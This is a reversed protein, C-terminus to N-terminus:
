YELRVHGKYTRNDKDNLKLIYFYSGAPLKGKNGSGFNATGDWDNKYPSKQYVLNGWRNYIEVEANKFNLLGKIEWVDNKGDGNPTILEPIPGFVDWVTVTRQTTDSCPGNTAILTVIYTGTQNFEIVPNPIGSTQGNGFNWQYSSAGSSTNQFNVTLPLNGSSPTPSFDAWVYLVSYASTALASGCANSVTATYTGNAGPSFVSGQFGTNWTVTGNSAATFSFPVSTNCFVTSSPQISITPQPTITISISSTATNCSNSASVSYTGSQNVILSSGSVTGWTINTANSSATLTTQGCHPGAPANIQITASPTVNVQTTAQANGCVSSVTFGYIGSSGISVSPQTSGTTWSYTQSGTQSVPTITPHINVSQGGCVSYLPLIQISPTVNININASATATNCAGTSSVTYTGSNNVVLSPAHVSGNWIFSTGNGIATLTTQNCYPGSPVNIQVTTLPVIQVQVSASASGCLGNVTFGYIGSTGASISSQTSGNSWSYTQSGTQSVPTITPQINVSQGSCTVLTPTVQVTPTKYVNVTFVAQASGTITGCTRTAICTLTVPGFENIGPTYTNTLLTTNNIAFSGQGGTWFINDYSGNLVTVSLNVASSTCVTNSSLQVNVQMPTYPANCGINTYTPNGMMDYEVSAGDMASAPQPSTSYTIGATSTLLAPIYAVSGTCSPVGTVTFNTIRPTWSSTTSANAYHGQFNGANQYIVYLTDQLNAFSNASVCMDTSLIFLVDKNPPLVGGVPELLKGCGQVTAQLSATISATLANPNVIGLWSNNPWDFILSSISVSQTGTRFLVMENKGECNCAPSLSNTCGGGPVCADVLIRKIWIACQAHGDNVNMILFVSLILTIKAKDIIKILIGM